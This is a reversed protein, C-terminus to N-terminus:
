NALILYRPPDDLTVSRTWDFIETVSAGAGSTTNKGNKTYFHKLIGM